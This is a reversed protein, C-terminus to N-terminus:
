GDADKRAAILGVVDRTSRVKPGGAIFIKGWLEQRDGKRSRTEVTYDSGKSHVDPKLALLVKEM